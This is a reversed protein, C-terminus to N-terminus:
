ICAAARAAAPIGGREEEGADNCAGTIRCTGVSGGIGAITGPVVAMFGAGITVLGTRVWGGCGFRGVAEGLNTGAAAWAM